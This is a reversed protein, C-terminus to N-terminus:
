GTPTPQLRALHSRWAGRTPIGALWADISVLNIAMATLVHQLLTKAKGRYRAHHIDSRASAQAILGEVGARIAYRQKWDATVQEARIHQQAEFQEKPRFTLGRPNEASRTCRSRDGCAACDRRRFIVHVIPQGHRNSTEQWNSAVKGQPCIAQKNDWDITFRDLSYADPDQAQWGSDAPLPGLLNVGHDRQAALIHGVSVYGADVIHEDPLLDAAALDHHIATLTDVDATTAETTTVQVILHPADPQCTQTFHVKYGYWGVERKISYRADTDYPGCILLANPPQDDKDRWRVAEGDRVYQQVWVRRLVEVAPLQALWQAGEAAYVMQLLLVGDLGVVAALQARAAETRALRYNSARQGYREYWAGPIWQSLWAPAAAALAELAARVSEAVLELRHLERVAAQVCTADSRQRGGKSLLGRRGLRDLMLSLLRQAQGDAALRGRFETLVSADFGADTLELGLAYKWDLRGRVADAAQRDTLGEVFQLVVVLTLRAPCYGPRGRVAYLEAFDEDSFLEGLEDRIRITMCGKPFAAKAVRVTTVPIEYTQKPWVSM